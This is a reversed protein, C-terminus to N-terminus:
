VSYFIFQEVDVFMLLNGVLKQDMSNFFGGKWIKLMKFHPVQRSRAPLDIQSKDSISSVHVLYIWGASLWFLDDYMKLNEVM